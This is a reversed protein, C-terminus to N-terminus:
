FDGGGFDGGGFGGGGGFDGGGWGGGFDGGSGGGDSHGGWGGMGWGFPGMGGLMSGLLMGEFLGFGGFYAGAWPGYYGPANWYPTSRGGVNVERGAPDQGSEVLRADEECAPVDRAMAGPPAWMVDRVSMGHRPDFFCPPRREPLPKGELRARSCAIAYRGDDITRVIPEIENLYRAQDLRESASQYADLATVYDNKAAADVNPMSVDLDLARLDEGLAVLDDLAAEKVEAVQRAEEERLRRKKRASSFMWLGAGGILLIPLVPIGSGGSEEGPVDGAAAREMGDLFGNLVDAVSGGQAGAVAEDAVAGAVGAEFDTSGARFERGVVLGYTGERQVQDAILSLLQEASGGAQQRAEEPLVALYIAGTESSIEFIRDRLDQADSESLEDEADPHVYVTQSALGEATEDVIDITTQQAHVPAAWLLLLLCAALIRRM